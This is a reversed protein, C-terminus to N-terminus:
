AVAKRRLRPREGGYREIVARRSLFVQVRSRFLTDRRLALGNRALVMLSILINEGFRHLHQARTPVHPAAFTEFGYLSSIRSLQRMQDATGFGMNARVVDIDDMEPTASLFTALDCLSTHLCENMRRAFRLTNDELLPLHENWLHLDVIRDGVFARTGDHLVVDHECLRLQMRFITQPRESFEFVGHRARLADDLRFVLWGLVRTWKGPARKQRDITALTDRAM